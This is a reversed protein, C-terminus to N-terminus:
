VGGQMAQVPSVKLATRVPYIWGLLGLLVSLLMSRCMTLSSVSVELRSTGFLQILFINTFEINMSSLVFTCVAGLLCGIIGATITLMFTEAMCQVSVFKRSAGQARLTGIEHTRNLVNVVLTNNIIIFGAFLIVIVGANFIVRMWYLYLASNGAATRWLVARAPWFNKRFVSNLKKAVARPNEDPSLRCTFFNWSSSEIDAPQSTEEEFLESESDPQSVVAGVDEAEDFLKDIDLDEDLLDKKEVDIFASDSVSDSMDMLSRVTFADALVIRDLTSNEVAYDYICSVEAARIRFAPGDAILFQVTDGIDAGLEDAHKKSLMIGREGAAFPEGRCIKISSMCEMYTEAPVGFIWVPIRNGNFEMSGTGTVQPVAMKIEPFSNLCESIKDFPILSPIRTFTGTVPTEDGFLSMPVDTIPVVAVDGTFSGSFVNEIGNETSDFVSNIVAMLMISFSIFLIIVFSSKRSIINKFALYFLM